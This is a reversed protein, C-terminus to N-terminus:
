ARAREILFLHIYRPDLAEVSVRGYESEVEKFLDELTSGIQSAIEYDKLGSQVALWHLFSQRHRQSIRRSPEANGEAATGFLQEFFVKFENLSLPKLIESGLNLSKRAWSTLLLSKYTLFGYSSIPTIQIALLGLLEDLAKIQEFAAETAQIDDVSLFERYMSGTKYNDFFLPKKILLGGLIGLWEEGWFTLRLGTRAFWSGHLWKEARWKIALARGFGVRFLDVLGYRKIMNAAQRAEM